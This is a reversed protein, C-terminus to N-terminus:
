ISLLSKYLNEINDLMKKISYNERAFQRGVEGAISRTESTSYYDIAKIFDEAHFSNVLVCNKFILLSNEKRVPEIAMDPIGGVNPAIFPIGSFMAEILSVPTGENKSTILAIDKDNWFTEPTDINGLFVIKETNFNSFKKYDTSSGGGAITIKASIKRSELENAIEVALSYNKIPAIRGLMGIKLTDDNKQASEDKNDLTYDVGLPIISVTKDNKIKIKELIEDKLKKSISIITDTKKALIRELFIFISTKFGSFYSHFIHGHFTHVIIIKKRQFLNYIIAATRGILGAKSTHTHIIDPKQKSILSYLSIFGQLDFLPNISRKLHKLIIPIVNFKEAYWLIEDENSETQGAVLITEFYDNRLKSSLLIAHKAAGGNNLRTIIILVKYKKM